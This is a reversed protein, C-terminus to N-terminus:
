LGFDGKTLKFKVDAVDVSDLAYWMASFTHSDINFEDFILNGDRDKAYTLEALERITNKCIDSCIIRQFRKMKRTNDLRAHITGGNWKKCAVANLGRKQLYRIAKPEASDCRIVERTRVFEELHDALEDDTEHNRYYEWYIYLFKNDMDVAVRVVANYSTEFGFDLGVFKYRRPIKEVADMVENHSAIEFQPLVRVGNIGFRGQRAVRYLDPDYEKIKELEDLYDSPLFLNDDAVSHHYYTDGFRIIRKKYLEEDSLNRNAFFHQYTWNSKAVPNTSLILHLKLYPHRLRGILEKFGDYKIESCEEIWILSIDHISKLKEPKDLGRFLIKSGNSFMIRMPSKGLTIFSELDLSECIEAFLPYCSDRITDYVERVVLCTRKEQLLKLIIKLAIHYSKSSGYGGVLLYFKSKWDFLFDEFHPNVEKNVRM